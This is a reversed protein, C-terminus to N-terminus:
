IVDKLKSVSQFYKGTTWSVRFPCSHGLLCKTDGDVNSDDDLGIHIVQQEQCAGSCSDATTGTCNCVCNECELLGVNNKDDHTMSIEGTWSKGDNNQLTLFLLDGTPFCHSWSEDNDIFQEGFSQAGSSLFQMGINVNGRNDDTTM